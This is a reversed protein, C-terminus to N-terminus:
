PPHGPLHHAHGHRRDLPSGTTSLPPTFSPSSLRGRSGGRSPPGTSSAEGTIGDAWSPRSRGTEASMALLAGQVEPEQELAVTFRAKGDEGVEMSLLRVLIVDGEQLVDGPDRVTAQGSAVTPDPRRAWAMNKLPLTGECRGIRVAVRKERSDVVTVLGRIVDLGAPIGQSFDDPLNEDLAALFAEYEEPKLKGLPGRYGQRKDLERM